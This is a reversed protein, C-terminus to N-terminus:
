LHRGVQVKDSVNSHHVNLLEALVGQREELLAALNEDNQRLKETVLTVCLVFVMCCVSIVSQAHPAEYVPSSAEVDYVLSAVPFLRCRVSDCFCRSM